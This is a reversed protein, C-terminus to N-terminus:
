SNDQGPNNSLHILSHRIFWYGASLTTQKILVQEGRPYRNIPHIANNLRWVVPAQHFSRWTEGSFIGHQHRVRCLDKCRWQNTTVQAPFNLSMFYVYWSIAWESCSMSRPPAVRLSYRGTTRSVFIHGNEHEREAWAIMTRASGSSFTLSTCTSNIFPIPLTPSHILTLSLSNLAKSSTFKQKQAPFHIHKCALM